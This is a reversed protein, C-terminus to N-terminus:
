RERWYRRQRELEYDRRRKARIYNIPSALTAGIFCGLLVGWSANLLLMALGAGLMLGFFTLLVGRWPWYPSAVDAEIWDQYEVPLRGGLYYRM